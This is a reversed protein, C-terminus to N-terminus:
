PLLYGILDCQATTATGGDVQVTSFYITAGAAVPVPATTAGSTFTAVVQQATTPLSTAVTTAVLAALSGTIGIKFSTTAGFATAGCRLVAFLPVCRQAPTCLAQAATTAVNVSVNNALVAMRVGAADAGLFSAM